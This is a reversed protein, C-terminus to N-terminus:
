RVIVVAGSKSEEEPPAQPDPLVKHWRYLRLASLIRGVGPVVPKEKLMKVPSVHPPDAGMTKLLIGTSLLEPVAQRMCLLKAPAKWSIARWPMRAKAGSGYVVTNELVGVGECVGEGDDVGDDVGDDAGDGAGDTEASFAARMPTPTVANIRM